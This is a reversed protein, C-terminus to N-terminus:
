KPLGRDRAAAMDIIIAEGARLRNLQEPLYYTESRLGGITAYWTAENESPRGVTALPVFSRTELDVGVLSVIECGLVQRALAALRAALESAGTHADTSVLERAMALLADLAEHTRRELRRRETVDRSVAIAGVIAGTEDRLPAGSSNVQLDRGGVSRLRVDLANSGTVVEGRLLRAVASEELPIPSGQEDWTQVIAAREALSCMEYEPHADLAFLARAAANTRLIRGERDYILIADTIAEFATELERARAM